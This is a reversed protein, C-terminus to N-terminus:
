LAPAPTDVPALERYIEITLAVVREVSFETEALARAEAGLRQCLPPDEILRRLAGALAKRDGLPVLIGSLGDRVAERCGPADYTVIPRGSAAAELLAKPIGEGYESPLCIVRAAAFVASMDDRRGWWEVVGEQHWERLRAEPVAQPNSPHTNGVLAFRAEVGANKLGRAVEVFTGIGKEWIMRAPLVVLAPGEAFPAAPFEDLSVGSGRTLVMQERPAVGFRELALANDPNQVIVRANPRRSSLRYGRVLAWRFLRARLGSNIFHHGLGPFANVVAPVNLLRAALGGYLVAKASIHHVIDPRLRRYLALLAAITSLEKLPNTGRRSLPIDHYALDFKEFYPRAAFGKPAWANEDPAAIHVRYGAQRAALALPMRHSVFFYPENVVFLLVPTRDM